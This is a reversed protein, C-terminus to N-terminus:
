KEYLEEALERSELRIMYDDEKPKSLADFTGHWVIRQDIILVHRSIDKKVTSIGLKQIYDLGEELNKQTSSTEVTISTGNRQATDFARMLKRYVAISIFGASIYISREAHKIDEILVDMYEIHGFVKNDVTLQETEEQIHYNNAYYEKLRLKFMAAFMNCNYDVYDYIKVQTKGEHKRHIRGICQTLKGEWKIPMTLFLTDLSPLDYGENLLSSTSFLVYSENTQQLEAFIENRDRAKTDGVIMYCQDAIHSVMDYLIALHAKRESLVLINRREKVARSIDQFIQYNRRDNETMQSIIQDHRRASPDPRFPTMQKVLVKDFDLLSLLVNQSTKYLIRGCYMFMIRDLHDQRKPTASFSYIYRCSCYKLVNRFSASGVCHCEDIIVMGYNSFLASLDEINALSNILIIDLKGKLKKKQSSYEGIYTDKKKAVHPIDLFQEAKSKWGDILNKRPVIVLTSVKKQAVLYLAIVTKGSGTPAQVIGINEKETAKVAETQHPYLHGTFNLDIPTGLVTRDKEIMHSDCFRSLISSMTGRPLSIIQDSEEVETLVRPTTSSNIYRHLRQCEYYEPNPMSGIRRLDRLTLANLDRKAIHVQSDILAHFESSYKENNVLKMAIQDNDDTFFQDVGLFGDLVSNITQESIKQLSQLYEIPHEIVVGHEDIFSANGKIYADYQLPLAICNGIGDQATLVDQSPFMRDFSHFTIHPNSKMAESLLYSGLNRALLAPIANEFFLWLHGGDGSQSREMLADLKKSRCIRYLSLLCEFWYDGDFDFALLFCTNDNRMPYIALPHPNDRRAMHAFVEDDTLRMTEKNRCDHCNGTHLSILCRNRDFRNGCVFSYGKRKKGEKSSIFRTAYIDDRGRFYQRYIQIKEEKSLPHESDFFIYGYEKLKKKLFINEEELQKLREEEGM